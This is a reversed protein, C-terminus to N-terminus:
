CIFPSSQKRKKKSSLLAEALLSKMGTKICNYFTDNGAFPIISLLSILMPSGIFLKQSLALYGTNIQCFCTKGIHHGKIQFPLPHTLMKIWGSFYM